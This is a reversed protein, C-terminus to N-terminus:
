YQIPTYGDAQYGPVVANPNSATPFTGAGFQTGFNTNLTNASLPGNGSFVSSGGNGNSQNYLGYAATAGGIANGVLNTPNQVQQMGSTAGQTGYPAGVIGMYDKLINNQYQNQLQWQNYGNTDAAQQEQQQLLGGAAGLQYNNNAGTIASNAANLGLGAASGLQGNANLRANTNNLAFNLGSNAAGLQNSANAEGLGIQQGAQTNANNALDNYGYMSANTATNLGSSYLGAATSMGTNYANNLISADAQGETTAAAQRAMGEAMGSRSSNLNGAQAQQQNMTPLTSQNLTQNIARNTADLSAQVQPSNAYTQANGEIRATPDSLGQNAATSLSNQFGQLGHAGAVASDNLASSLAPSAGQVRQQGTGYNTLTNQLDGVGPGTVGNAAVGQANGVYPVTAGNLVGAANGMGNVLDAGQGQTFQGAYNIVNNTGQNGPAVLEGTYPGQVRRDQYIGQADGFGNTLYGQQPQWPASSTAGSSSSSGGSGKSSSSIVAGGIAGVAGIGAAAVAGM